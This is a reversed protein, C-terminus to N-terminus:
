QKDIVKWFSGYKVSIERVIQKLQLKKMEKKAKTISWDYVIAIEKCAVVKYYALFDELPPKNAPEVEQKLIDYLVQVYINFPYLGSIKIGDENTLQNFFVITPVYDVNMEKLLKLDRQLAKKSTPSFLDNKFENLDLKSEQACEILISEKSIDKKKLFLYEQIKRLFKRGSRKGQLEAAKIALSIVWSSKIPTELWFDGDCSMGTRKATKDWIKHLQKPKNFSGKDLPRLNSSIIPRLTFFRGFEMELKKLYPEFAWCEPCLPDIFVYIEIPKKIFNFYSYKSSTNQTSGKKPLEDHNWSM